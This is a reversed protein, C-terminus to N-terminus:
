RGTRAHHQRMVNIPVCRSADPREHAAVTEWFDPMGDLDTVPRGPAPWWTTTRLEDVIGPVDYEGVYEGLATAVYARVDRDTTATRAGWVRFVIEGDTAAHRGDHGSPALCVVDDDDPDRSLCPSTGQWPDP